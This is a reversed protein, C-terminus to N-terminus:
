TDGRELRTLQRGIEDGEGPATLEPPTWFATERIAQDVDDPVLGPSWHSTAAVRAFPLAAGPNSRSFVKGGAFALEEARVNLQVAAIRALKDRLRVAALHAAGVVAAAFRSGTMFRVSDGRETFGAALALLPSVHGHVPVCGFLISAM